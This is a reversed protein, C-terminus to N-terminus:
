SVDDGLETSVDGLFIQFGAEDMQRDLNWDYTSFMGAVVEERDLIADHDLDWSLDYNLNGARRIEEGSILADGNEDLRRFYEQAEFTGQWEELNLSGDGNADWDGFTSETQALGQLPLLLPVVAAMLKMNM